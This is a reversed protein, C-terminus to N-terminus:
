PLTALLDTADVEVVRPERATLVALCAAYRPGVFLECFRVSEPPTREASWSLLTPPQDPASVVIQRLPVGLGYGTAKLVAEKRTWYTFFGRAREHAPMGALVHQEAPSLVFQTMQAIQPGRQVHEVDVGVPAADAVAVVVRDESHSISLELSSSPHTLQPKGHPEGCHQCRTSFQLSGPEVNLQSSLLLKALARGLVFRVRDDERRFREYRALEVEELLDMLCPDMAALGTWSVLVEVAQRGPMSSALRGVCEPKV